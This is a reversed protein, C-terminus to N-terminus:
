LPYFASTVQWSTFFINFNNYNLFKKVRQLLWDTEVKRVTVTNINYLEPHKTTQFKYM